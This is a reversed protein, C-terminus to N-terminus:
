ETRVLYAVGWTSVLVVLVILDLVHQWSEAWTGPTSNSVVNIAVAVTSGLLIVGFKRLM